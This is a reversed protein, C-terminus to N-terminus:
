DLSSNVRDQFLTLQLDPSNYRIPILQYKCMWKVWSKITQSRRNSTDSSHEVESFVINKVLCDSLEAHGDDIAELVKRVPRYNLMAQILLVEKTELDPAYAICRGASTLVPRIVRGERVKTILKLEFLAHKAYQGHRKIDKEKKAKHGLQHGLELSSTINEGILVLARILKEHSDYQPIRDLVQEDDWSDVLSFRERFVNICRVNLEIISVSKSALNPNTQYHLDFMHGQVRSINKLYFDSGSIEGHEVLCDLYPQLENCIEDAYTTRLNKINKELESDNFKLDYM